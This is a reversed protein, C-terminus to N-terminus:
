IAELWVSGEINLMCSMIAVKMMFIDQFPLRREVSWIRNKTQKKELINKNLFPLVFSTKKLSLVLPNVQLVEM